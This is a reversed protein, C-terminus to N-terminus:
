LVQARKIIYVSVRNIKVAGNLVCVQLLALLLFILNASSKKRGRTRCTIILTKLM